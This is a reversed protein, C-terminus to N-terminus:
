SQLRCHEQLDSATGWQSKEIRTKSNLRGGTAPQNGTKSWSLRSGLVGTKAPKGKLIFAAFCCYKFGKLAEFEKFTTYNCLFRKRLRGLHSAAGSATYVFIYMKPM